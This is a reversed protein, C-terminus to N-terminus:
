SKKRFIAHISEGDGALSALATLMPLVSLRFMKRIVKWPLGAPKTKALPAPDFGCRRSLEEVLYRTSPEIFLERHTTVSVEELGALEGMETLTRPSFHFLHRPLELGYWYSGFIRAGASDINPMMAFFIGGPKLWQSVKDLVARPQYLHEFVHFCTIADFNESSFPADLIEGVFIEAGSNRGAEVAVAASMEIGYPEWRSSPLSKLFGGSSCGLDLIKGGSKYQLLVDRRGKWHDLEAGASAISRDYDEGYHNGMEAPSPPDKLWVLSCVPCRALEYVTKRGHFRDPAALFVKPAKHPCGARHSRHSGQLPLLQLAQNEM